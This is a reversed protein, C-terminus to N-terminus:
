VEDVNKVFRFLLLVYGVIVPTLALLSKCVRTAYWATIADYSKNNLQALWDLLPLWCVVALGLLLPYLWRLKDYQWLVFTLTCWLATAVTIKITFVANMGIWKCIIYTLIVWLIGLIFLIYEEPQRLM